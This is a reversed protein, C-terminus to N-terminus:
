TADKDEPQGDMLDDFRRALDSNPEEGDDGEEPAALRLPESKAEPIPRRIADQREARPHVLEGTDGFSFVLRRWDQSEYAFGPGEPDLDSWDREHPATAARETWMGADTPNGLAREAESALLCLRATPEEEDLIQSLLSLADVPRGSRLHHSIMLLRAERDDPDSAIFRELRKTRTADSEGPYLDFYAISIAPHPATKWAKELLSAAKKQGGTRALEYAAIAVAPAFDSADKLAAQSLELAKDHQGNDLWFDAEATLLVARRRNFIDGSLHKAARGKELVDRAETWRYDAVLAKFLTDFAWRAQVNQDFAERAAEVAGPLDGKALKAQALGRQATPRTKPSDLMASYHVIAEDQDGCAEAATASIIHGLDTSGALDRVRASAKRARDMDGEAGAILAEEMADIARNRRRMGVGSKLRRPLRWIWLLVSWLTITGVMLLTGLFIVAQWSMELDPFAIPWTTGSSSLTLMADDGIYLMAGALIAVFLLFTIIYKAM